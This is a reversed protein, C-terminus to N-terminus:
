NRRGRRQDGGKEFITLLCLADGGTANKLTFDTVGSYGSELAIAPTADDSQDQAVIEGSANHAFLDLDQAQTDGFGMAIHTGAPITVQKAQFGTDPKVVGGLLCWTNPGSFFHFDNNSYYTELANVKAIVADLNQKHISWGDENVLVVMCAFTPVSGGNALVYTVESEAGVNVSVGAFPNEDTDKCVVNGETDLVALDIDATEASGGATLIYHHNAALTTEFKANAGPELYAGLIAIGPKFGYQSGDAFESSGRACGAFAISMLAGPSVDELPRNLVSHGLVSALVLSSVPMDSM